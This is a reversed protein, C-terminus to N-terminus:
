ATQFGLTRQTWNTVLPYAPNVFELCWIPRRGPFLVFFYCVKGKKGKKKKGATTFGWDDDPNTEPAAPADATVSAGLDGTDPVPEPEPEPEPEAKGKKGKKKKGVTAFSGWEDIPDAEGAFASAPAEEAAKAAAEEEAKKAEEEEKRKEEEEFDEWANKKKKKKNKKSGGGGFSWDEDNNDGGDGGGPPDGGAGAGGDGGADDGGGGGGGDAPADEKKEENDDDAWKDKAAQKAAKKAKKNAHERIGEIAGLDVKGADSFMKSGSGPCSVDWFLKTTALADTSVYEPPLDNLSDEYSPPPLARPRVEDRPKFLERGHAPNTPSGNNVNRAHKADNIREWFGVLAKIRSRLGHSGVNEDL